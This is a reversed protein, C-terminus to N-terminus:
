SFAFNSFGLLAVDRVFLFDSRLSSFSQHDESLHVLNGHLLHDEHLTKKRKRKYNVSNVLLFRPSISLSLSFINEYTPYTLGM